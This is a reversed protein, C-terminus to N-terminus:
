RIALRSNLASPKINPEVTEIFYVFAVSSHVSLRRWLVRVASYMFADRPLVRSHNCIRAVCLPKQQSSRFSRQQNDGGVQDKDKNSRADHGTSRREVHPAKNDGVVKCHYDHWGVHTGLHAYTEVQSNSYERWQLCPVSELSKSGNWGMVRYAGFAPIATLNRPASIVKRLAKM